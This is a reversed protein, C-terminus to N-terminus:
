EPTQASAVSESPLWASYLSSSAHAKDLNLFRLHEKHVSRCAILKCSLFILVSCRSGIPSRSSALLQESPVIATHSTRLSAAASPPATWGVAM